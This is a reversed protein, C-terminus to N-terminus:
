WSNPKKIEKGQLVHITEPFQSCKLDSKRIHRVFSATKALGPPSTEPCYGPFLTHLDLWKYATNKLARYYLNFGDVYVITRVIEGWLLL